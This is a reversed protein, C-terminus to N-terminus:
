QKLHIKNVEKLFGHEILEETEHMDPVDMMESFENKGIGSSIPTLYMMRMIYKQRESLEFLKYLLRIHDYYSNSGRNRQKLNIAANKEMKIKERKIRNYLDKPGRILWKKATKVKNWRLLRAALEVAFTHKHLAYIIKLVIVDDTVDYFYKVVDLLEDPHLEHAEVKPYDTKCSTTVIIKSKANSLIYKLVNDEDVTKNCDDLLILNRDDLKCLLKLSDNFREEITKYRISSNTFLEMVAQKLNGYNLYVVNEYQDRNMKVYKYALESTGIGLIGEVFAISYDKLKNQLKILETERGCFYPCVDPVITENLHTKGNHLKVESYIIKDDVSSQELMIIYLIDALVKVSNDRKSREPNNLVKKWEDEQIAPILGGGIAADIMCMAVSCNEKDKMLSYVNNMDNELLTTGGPNDRMMKKKDSLYFRTIHPSLDIEDNVMRSISSEDPAYASKGGINKLM